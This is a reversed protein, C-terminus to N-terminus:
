QPLSVLSDLAVALMEDVGKRVVDRHPDYKKDVFVNGDSVFVGGARVNKLSALVLLVALEMEVALVGAKAWLEYNGPLLEPAFNAQTLIVGTHIRNGHPRAAEELAAIVRRDAFAPFEPPALFPSTGDQRVAATALIMDGDHIFNQMAGCTGARIVNKIRAHFLQQFCVSAGSAGVGHSCVTVAKGRYSGSITLYERYSGVEVADQLLAASEAVRNPDGMVLVNPAIDELNARLIPLDKDAM